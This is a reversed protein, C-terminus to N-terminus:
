IKLTVYSFLRYQFTWVQMTDRAMLAHSVSSCLACASTRKVISSTHQFHYNEVPFRHSYFLTKSIKWGPGAWLGNIELIKRGTWAWGMAQGYGPPSALGLALMPEPHCTWHM